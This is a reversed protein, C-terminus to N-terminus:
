PFDYANLINLIHVVYMGMHTTINQHYFPSTLYYSTVM